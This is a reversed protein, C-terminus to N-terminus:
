RHCSSKGIELSDPFSAEQLAQVTVFIENLSSYAIDLPPATVQTPEDDDYSGNM